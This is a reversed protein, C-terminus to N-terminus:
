GGTKPKPTITPGDLATTVPKSVEGSVHQKHAGCAMASTAFSAALLGAATITLLKKM